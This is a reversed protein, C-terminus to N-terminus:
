QCKTKNARTPQNNREIEIKLENKWDITLTKKLKKTKVWKSKNKWKNNEIEELITQEQQNNKQENKKNIKNTWKIKNM